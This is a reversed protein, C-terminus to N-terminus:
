VACPGLSTAFQAFLDVLARKEGTVSYHGFRAATGLEWEFNDVLTWALVGLLNGTGRAYETLIAYCASTYTDQAREAGVQASGLETFLLPFRTGVTADIMALTASLAAPDLAWGAACKEQTGTGMDLEVGFGTFRITASTYHNVGLVDLTNTTRVRRRFPGFRLALAGTTAWELYSANLLTHLERALIVEVPSASSRPYIPMLNKAITVLGHPALVAYAADHARILNCMVDLCTPVSRVFPPRRGVGYGLMAFLFPENLTVFIPRYAALAAGCVEAFRAFTQASSAAAFGGRDSFWRPEVFHFLTVIPRLGSAVCVRATEVYAALARADITGERPEVRAWDVGFRFASMAPVDHKARRLDRALKETDAHCPSTGMGEPQLRHAFEAWLTTCQESAPRENQFPATAYGILPPVRAGRKKRAYTRPAYVAVYGRYRLVIAVCLVLALVLTRRWM